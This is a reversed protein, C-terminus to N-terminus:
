KYKNIKKSNKIRNVKNLMQLPSLGAASVQLPVKEGFIKINKYISIRWEEDNM